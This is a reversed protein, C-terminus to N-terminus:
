PKKRNGAKTKADPYFYKILNEAYEGLVNGMRTEFSSSFFRNLEGSAWCAPTSGSHGIATYMNKELIKDIWKKEHIMMNIMDCYIIEINNKLYDIQNTANIDNM